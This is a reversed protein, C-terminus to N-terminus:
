YFDIVNLSIPSHNDIKISKSFWDIDILLNKQNYNIINIKMSQYRRPRKSILQNVPPTCGIERLQSIYRLVNVVYTKRTCANYSHMLGRNNFHQIASDVPYIVIWNILILSILQAIRQISNIWHIAIDVKQVVSAPQDCYKQLKM